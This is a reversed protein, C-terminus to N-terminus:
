LLDPDWRDGMERAKHLKAEEMGREEECSKKLATAAQAAAVSKRREVAARQRIQAATLAKDNFEANKQEQTAPRAKYSKPLATDPTVKTKESAPFSQAPMVCAAALDKVAAKRTAKAEVYEKLSSPVTAKQLELDLDCSARQIVRCLERYPGCFHAMSLARLRYRAMAWRMKVMTTLKSVKSLFPQCTMVM